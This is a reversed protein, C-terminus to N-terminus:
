TRCFNFFFLFANWNLLICVAWKNVMDWCANGPPHTYRGPTHTGVQPHVQEPLIYRGPTYRGPPHVQWPNYRVQPHVQGPSNVQRPPVQGPVGGRHFSDCVCTFIYGQGLSRKRATVHKKYQHLRQQPYQDNPTSTPSTRSFVQLTPRHIKWSVLNLGGDELIWVTRAIVYCGM